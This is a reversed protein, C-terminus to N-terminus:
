RSRRTQAARRAVETDALSFPGGFSPKCTRELSAGIAACMEISAIALDGRMDAIVSHNRVSDAIGNRFRHDSCLAARNYHSVQPEEASVDFDYTVRPDATGIPYHAHERFYANQGQTWELDTRFESVSRRVRQDQIASLGGSGMIEEYVSSPVTISPYMALTDVSRWASPSPCENRHVLLTAFAKERNVIASMSDRDNRLVAVTAESEEFLRELLEHQRGAENRMTAWENLEFAILIGAIVGLTELFLLAWERGEVKDFSEGVRKFLIM